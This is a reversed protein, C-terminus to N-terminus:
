NQNVSTSGTKLLVEPVLKSYREHFSIETVSTSGIKLLKQTVLGKKIM